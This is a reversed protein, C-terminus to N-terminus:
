DDSESSTVTVRHQDEPCRPSGLQFPSDSLAQSSRTMQPHGPTMLPLPKKGLEVRWLGNRVEAVCGRGQHAPRHTHTHTHTHTHAGGLCLGWRRCSVWHRPQWAWAIATIENWGLRRLETIQGTQDLKSNSNVQEGPDMRFHRSFLKLVKNELTQFFSAKLLM